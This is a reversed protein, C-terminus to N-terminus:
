AVLIRELRNGFGTTIEYNITNTLQAIHDASNPAAPDNSIVTATDGLKAAPIDTIDIIIQDM